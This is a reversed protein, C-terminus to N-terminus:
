GWVVAAIAEPTQAAQVLDRLAQRKGTLAGSIQRYLVDMDRIKIALQDRSIGRAVAAADIWPTDVEEGALVAASEMIQVPWTERESEPYGLALAATAAEYAANIEAEKEARLQGLAKGTAVDDVWKTLGLGLQAELSWGPNVGTPDIYPM